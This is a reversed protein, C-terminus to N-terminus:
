NLPPCGLPVATCARVLTFEARARRGGLAYIDNGGADEVMPESRVRIFRTQNDIPVIQWRTTINGVGPISRVTFYNAVNDDLNGGPVLRADDYPMARLQEAAETAETAAATQQNGITNYTVGIVFLNAVAALGFMLLVMAVMAEVLTFGAEPSRGPEAPAGEGAREM